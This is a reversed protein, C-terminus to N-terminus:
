SLVAHHHHHASICRVAAMQCLDRKLASVVESEEMAMLADEDEEGEEKEGRYRRMSVASRAARAICPSVPKHTSLGVQCAQPQKNHTGIACCEAEPCPPGVSSPAMLSNVQFTFMMSMM